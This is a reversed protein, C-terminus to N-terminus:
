GSVTLVTYQTMYNIYKFTQMLECILYAEETLRPLQGNAGKKQVASIGHWPDNIIVM